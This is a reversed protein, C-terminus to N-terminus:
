VAKGEPADARRRAFAPVLVMMAVIVLVGAIFFLAGPEYAYIWGGLPGAIIPALGFAVAAMIGQYTSALGPPARRDVIVVAAIFFLGFGLGKIVNVLLISWTSDAVWYGFYSLALLLFSLMLSNFDGLRRLIHQSYQMPPLECLASLGMMVGILTQTGGLYVVYITEFTWAMAFTAGTLFLSVLLLLFRVDRWPSPHAGPSSADAAPGSAPADMGASSGEDLLLAVGSTLLMLVGGIVFTFNFGAQEWVWGFVAATIAFTLSGWMRMGGYNLNHQVAMRVELSDALPSVPAHFTNMALYLVLMAVFPPLLNESPIKQLIFLMVGYGALCLALAVTRRHYRDALRAVIPSAVLMCLSYVSALIGIQESSFGLQDFYLFLFPQFVGVVGWYAGYFLSGRAFPNMRQRAARLFDDARLLIKSPIIQM